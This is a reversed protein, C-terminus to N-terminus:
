RIRHFNNIVSIPKTLFFVRKTNQSKFLTLIIFMFAGLLPKKRFCTVLKLFVNQKIFYLLLQCQQKIFLPQGSKKQQFITEMYLM